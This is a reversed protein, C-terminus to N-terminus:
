PSHSAEDELQNDKVATNPESVIENTDPEIHTVVTTNPFSERMKNEIYEAITHAEVVPMNAPVILHYDVERCPGARRTRFQHFGVIRPTTMVIQELQKLEAEPLRVDLLIIIADHSLRYAVRLIAAAIFLAIIPDIIQIDTIYVISLGVIVSISTWVDTTLHYADARIAASDTEDAVSLLYKSVFYNLIATIGMVIVALVPAEIPKPFLIKQIAERIVYVAAAFILLAQLAMSINEIKGHGYPHEADAPMASARVSFFAITSATLDNLSDAAASLVSVSNTILGVILKLVLLFINSAVSISAARTNRNM